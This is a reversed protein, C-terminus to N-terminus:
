TSETGEAALTFETNAIKTKVEELQQHTGRVTWAGFVEMPYVELDQGLLKMLKVTHDAFQVNSQAYASGKWVGPEQSRLYRIHEFQDVDLQLILNSKTQQSM